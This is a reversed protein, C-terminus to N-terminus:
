AGVAARANAISVQQAVRAALDAYAQGLLSDGELAIPQGSDGSLRIAEVLPLQGLLPVGFRDALQQGGGQGFLYYRRDPLDPPSFYAMNEVVGLVPVNIQPSTFMALAKHADAVAVAQPTTVILAGALPFQQAITIHIDGTGPPLDLILYDLDDWATDNLLQNIAKSAMPGRWVVPQGPEVLFGISMVQVGHRHFPVMCDRGQVERLLPREGELGFLLPVSPGYIDADLLGARSGARALAVALNAAVTSKGVGGKGSGVAVLNRLGSAQANPQSTTVEATMEIEVQADASVLLKIAQVCANRILEKLPCAPTTLVVTFAVRQGEIRLNRVMNLTVLDKKLDPEEVQRLANWVAAETIASM